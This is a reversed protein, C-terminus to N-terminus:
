LAWHCMPGMSRSGQTRMTIRLRIAVAQIALDILWRDVEELRLSALPLAHRLMYKGEHVMLAGHLCRSNWRLAAGPDLAGEDCIPASLLLWSADGSQLRACRMVQAEFWGLGVKIRFRLQVREGAEECFTHQRRLHDRICAWTGAASAGASVM